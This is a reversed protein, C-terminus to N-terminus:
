HHPRNVRFDDSILLGANSERYQRANKAGIKFIKKFLITEMEPDIDTVGENSTDHHKLM